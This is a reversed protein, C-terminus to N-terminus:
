KDNSKKNFGAPGPKKDPEIPVAAAPKKESPHPGFGEIKAAAEEDANNVLRNTLSEGIVKYVAKPFENKAM